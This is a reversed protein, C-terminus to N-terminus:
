NETELKLVLTESQNNWNVTVEVQSPLVSKASNGGGGGLSLDGDDLTSCTGSSGWSSEYSIQGVSERNSGNYSLQGGYWSYADM